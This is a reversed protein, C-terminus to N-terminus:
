NEIKLRMNLEKLFEDANIIELKGAEFDVAVAVCEMAGDAKRRQLMRIAMLGGDELWELCVNPIVREM